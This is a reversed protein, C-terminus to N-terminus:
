RKGAQDTLEILPREHKDCQEKIGRPEQPETQTWGRRQCRFVEEQACLERQVLFALDFGRRAVLAM